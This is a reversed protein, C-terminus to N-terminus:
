KSKGAVQQSLEALVSSPLRVKCDRDLNPQRNVYLPIASNLYDSFNTQYDGSKYDLGRFAGGDVEFRRMSCSGRANVFALFYRQGTKAVWYYWGKEIKATQERRVREAKLSFLRGDM